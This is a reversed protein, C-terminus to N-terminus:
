REDLGFFYFSGILSDECGFVDGKRFLGTEQAVHNALNSLLPGIV